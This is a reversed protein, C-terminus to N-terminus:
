PRSSTALAEDLAVSWNAPSMGHYRRNQVFFTPTSDVRNTNGENLDHAVKADHASSSLCTAFVDRNLGLDSAYQVFSESPNSQGSWIGQEDYLKTRYEWFKGQDEACRAANAALRAHRHLTSLPFDKWVFRVRDAYKEMAAKVGVEASRCAPCQFDSYMHVTVRADAAGLSPSRADDFSVQEDQPTGTQRDAPAFYVAAALGGFLIIAVVAIGIM